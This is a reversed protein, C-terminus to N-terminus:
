RLGCEGFAPHELVSQIGTRTKHQSLRWRVVCGKGAPEDGLEEDHTESVRVVDKALLRYYENIRIRYAKEDKRELINCNIFALEGDTM